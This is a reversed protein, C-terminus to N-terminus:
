PCDTNGTPQQFVFTHYVTDEYVSVEEYCGYTSSSLSVAMSNSTGNSTGTSQSQAWTMTNSVGLSFHDSFKATLTAGVSYSTSGGLTQSTTTSDTQTYSNIIPDCNPCGSGSIQVSMPTSSGKSVPVPVYRCNYTQAPNACYSVGSGDAQLPNTTGAYSLLPDLALIPAFDTPNCGCQDAQTCSLTEYEAVILNKCISALGPYPSSVTSPMLWGVPINSSGSPNAQTISGPIAEMDIAPVEYVWVSPTQGNALPQPAVSYSVPTSGNTMVTVQPNLWIVLDDLNHNIANPNSSLSSIGLGTADTLSEGFASSNSSQTSFGFTQTSSLGIDFLTGSETFTISSADTFSNGLSTMTGNTTSQGYSVSSANGPPAYLISVVQYSPVIFNPTLEQVISATGSTGNSSPTFGIEYEVGNSDTFNGDSVPQGPGTPPCENVIGTSYLYTSGDSGVTPLGTSTTYVFNTQTYAYTEGGPCGYTATLTNTWSLTGGGNVGTNYTTARAPLACLTVLLLALLCSLKCSTTTRPTMRLDGITSRHITKCQPLAEYLYLGISNSRGISRFKDPIDVFYLYNNNHPTTRL